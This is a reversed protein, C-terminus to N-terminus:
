IVYKGSSRLELLRLNLRELVPAFRQRADLVSETCFFLDFFKGHFDQRHRERLQQIITDVSTRVGASRLQAVMARARDKTARRTCHAQVYGTVLTEFWLEAPRTFWYGSALGPEALCRAAANLDSTKILASYFNRFGRLIEAPDLEESPAVLFRFPATSIADVKTLLYSGYCASIVVLLNFGTAINLERLCVSLEKWQLESGNEFELGCGKSGHCEVHLLPLEGFDNAATILESVVRLFEKASTCQRYEVKLDLQSEDIVPGIFKVLEYGTKTENAELSEVVVIKSITLNHHM